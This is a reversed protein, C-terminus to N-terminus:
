QTVSSPANGDQLAAAKPFNLVDEDLTETECGQTQSTRPASTTCTQTSKGKGPLYQHATFMQHPM